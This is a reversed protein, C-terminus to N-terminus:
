KRHNYLEGDNLESKALWTFSGGDFDDPVLGKFVPYSKCGTAINASNKSSVVKPFTIMRPSMFQVGLDWTNTEDDEDYIGELKKLLLHVPVKM